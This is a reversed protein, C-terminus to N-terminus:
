NELSIEPDDFHRSASAAHLKGDSCNMVWDSCEKALLAEVGIAFSYLLALYVLGM